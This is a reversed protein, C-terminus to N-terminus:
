GIEPINDIGGSLKLVCELLADESYCYIKKSHVSWSITYDVTMTLYFGVDIIKDATEFSLDITFDNKNFNM